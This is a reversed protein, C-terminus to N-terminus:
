ATERDATSALGREAIERERIRFKQVKGSLTMPFMDVFRIHQPVKFHALRAKCFTRIEEEDATQGAKLKIWALVTEGLREDPLGVVQVDAIKPHTYLFEEIERPYINEGGRIIMDKARGTIRFYGDPRMRALDGTHLWGEEDIANATAEPEGDYGCMVMYGRALLEGQEGVPVTAGSDPAAIRVETEPLPSGVTTCRTEVSDDVRSMTIVPASETQGYCVVLEPCHMESVVRRMVEIPCPAGAMVGTRLSSLDFRGFEPHQLEAIFMAPVGYVATCREQAIADLTCVPDFSAGPLVAAAGATAAAMTGIVCGFCHFLPVAVAIRDKETLRMYQAIFRGNNVLNVHTLLVGKPTGTTGSTYQMNAPADPDPSVVIGDPERLFATWDPSDFYIIHDLVLQQGARSEELITQYNARRDERHLFLARIRSRRLVFSMEHSRYAPNINVLVIGALASGFQLMTWEVCNSAWVGVRDGPALGLARLGAAARLGEHAYQEWTLRINQPRSVLALEQPFRRATELFVDGIPARVITGKPGCAYSEMGNM